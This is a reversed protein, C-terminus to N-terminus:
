ITGTESRRADDGKRASSITQRLVAFFLVGAFFYGITATVPEAQYALLILTLSIATITMNAFIFAM